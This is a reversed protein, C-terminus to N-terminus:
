THYLIIIDLVLFTSKNSTYNVHINQQTYTKSNERSKEEQSQETSHLFEPTQVFTGATSGSISIQVGSVLVGYPSGHVRKVFAQDTYQVYM